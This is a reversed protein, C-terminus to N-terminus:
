LMLLLPIISRPGKEKAIEDIKDRRDDNLYYKPGRKHKKSCIIRQKVLAKLVEKGIAMDPLGAFLHEEHLSGNGWCGNAKLKRVLTRSYKIYESKKIKPM